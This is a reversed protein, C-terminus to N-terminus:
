NCPFHKCVADCIIRTLKDREATDGNYNEYFFDDVVSEINEMLNERQSLMELDMTQTFPFVSDPNPYSM